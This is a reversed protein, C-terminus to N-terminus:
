AELFTWVVPPVGGEMEVRRREVRGDGGWSGGSEVADFGDEAFGGYGEGELGQAAGGLHAGGGDGVGESGEDGLAAGAAGVLAVDYDGASQEHRVRERNGNGLVRPTTRFRFGSDSM